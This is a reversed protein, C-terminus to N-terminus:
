PLLELTKVPLSVTKDIPEGNFVGAFKVKVSVAGEKAEVVEGILGAYKGGHSKVIRNVTIRQM